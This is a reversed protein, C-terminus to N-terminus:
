CCSVLNKEPHKKREFSNYHRTAMAKIQKTKNSSCLRLQIRKNQGCTIFPKIKPKGCSLALGVDPLDKETM